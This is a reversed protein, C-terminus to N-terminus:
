ASSALRRSCVEHIDCVVPSERDLMWGDVFLPVLSPERTLGFTERVLPALEAAIQGLSIREQWDFRAGNANCWIRGSEVLHDTRLWEGTRAMAVLEAVILYCLLECRDDENLTNPM